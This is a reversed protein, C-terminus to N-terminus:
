LARRYVLASRSNSGALAFVSYDATRYRVNHSTLRASSVSLSEEAGHGATMAAKRLVPGLILWASFRISEIKCQDATPIIPCALHLPPNILSCSVRGAGSMCTVSM